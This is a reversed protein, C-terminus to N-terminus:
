WFVEVEYTVTLGKASTKTIPTDLKKAAIACNHFMSPGYGSNAYVPLFSTTNIPYQVVPCSSGVSMNTIYGVLIQASMDYIMGTYNDNSTTSWTIIYKDKAMSGSDFIHYSYDNVGETASMNSYTSVTTTTYETNNVFDAIYVCNSYLWFAYNGYIYMPYISSVAVKSPSYTTTHTSFTNDTFVYMRRNAATSSYVYIYYYGTASAYGVTKSDSSTGVTSSVNITTSSGLYNDYKTIVGATSCSYSYRGDCTNSAYSSSFAPPVYGQLPYKPFPGHQHTLGITGITGNAQATTFDYQFKWRVSSPTTEALKQNTANYAGRYKGTGATSPKGYGVTQGFVFPMDPDIDLTSDTMELYVSSIAAQWTSGSNDQSFISQEFIHNKGAIREKVKGTIPDTLDICYHGEAHCPVIGKPIRLIDKM